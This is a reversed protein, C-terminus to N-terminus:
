TTEPRELKLLLDEVSGKRLAEDFQTRYTTILSVGEIEIDYIRWDRNSKYFKYRVSITSDKSVLETSIRVKNGSQLTEKFVVREDSYMSVRELYTQKLLKVFLQTFREQQPETFEPWYKKGLTLKAMLPFDFLPTVLDSISRKKAELDLDKNQLVALVADLRDRLLDEVVQKDSAVVPFCILLSMGIALFLKKM